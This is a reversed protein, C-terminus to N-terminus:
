FEKKEYIRKSIMYSCAVYFASFVALGIITMSLSIDAGINTLWQWQQESVMGSLLLVLGTPVMAVLIIIIRAKETGFHYILPLMTSGAILGISAIIVLVAMMESWSSNKLFVVGILGIILAMIVGMGDLLMMVVYKGTVVEKRSVPMTLAYSDWKALDDYSITTVVMMTMMMILVGFFTSNGNPLFIVMWLAIIPILRKFTSQLNLFDKVLLGKM